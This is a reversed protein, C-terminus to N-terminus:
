GNIKKWREEIWSGKKRKEWHFCLLMTVTSYKLAYHLVTRVPIHQKNVHMCLFVSAGVKLKGFIVGFALHIYIETYALFFLVVDFSFHFFQFLLPLVSWTVCAYCFMYFETSVNSYKGLFFFIFFHFVFSPFFGRWKQYYVLFTFFHESFLFMRAVKPIHKYTHIETCVGTTHSYM